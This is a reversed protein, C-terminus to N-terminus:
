PCEEGAVFTKLIPNSGLRAALGAPHELDWAALDARQGAVLRGRDALGLAQAGAHTAGRLAESPSLGFRLCALNMAALLSTIPSTGPNCDTAVAMPVGAARLREVPPVRTERLFHFAGPLLVAVTRAQAMAAVGEASLWELHDASLGRHRAVIAAGGQDSLQEAHLKVPLGRAACAAFLREVQAPTFGITECFADVADVLGEAVLAPLMDGVLHDVYADSRGAFEPPVAHAGLFTTRVMRGSERGLRRAVRLMRAETALDLGYGSKIEVTTVGEACIADFRPRSQALLEDESAVRTAKVTSAIGGGARAIDAYSRGELRQEFEGDRHGAHVLHTHCDVLGPTLLAGELDIERAAEGAPVAEDRGVWAIVGDRVALAGREVLGWGEDGALTVLRARRLLLDAIV